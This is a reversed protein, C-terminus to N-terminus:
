QSFRNRLPALKSNRTVSPYIKIKQLNLSYINSYLLMIAGRCGASFVCNTPIGHERNELQGYNVINAGLNQILLKKKKKQFARPFICYCNICFLLTPHSLPPPLLPPPASAWVSHSLPLQFTSFSFNSQSSHFHAIRNTGIFIPLGILEM